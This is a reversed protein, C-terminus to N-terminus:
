SGDPDDGEADSGEDNLWGERGAIRVIIKLVEAVPNM